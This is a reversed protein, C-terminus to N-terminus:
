VKVYIRKKHLTLAVVTWFLMMLLAYTLQPLPSFSDIWQLLLASLSQQGKTTALTIHTLVSAIIFKGFYVLFSNRGFAELFTVLPGLATKKADVHKRYDALLYFGSILLATAGASILAFSPMWMRKNLPLVQHVLLALIVLLIGLLAIEKWGGSEKKTLILRGIAYGFLVNALAAFSTILGEPDFGREGQAYMHNEGFVKADVIGSLNCTPQPLGGECSQSTSLIVTGYVFLIFCAILVLKIPSKIFRTIIVTVIGLLAFMQLVGTLRLTSLDLSWTVIMTFLIGYVILRITRKVIRKWVVGKQYAIAMSTGFITIFAPLIFDIITLGYWAAHRFYEYGGEPITSLFVSLVVILGRAMDLSYIRKKVPKQQSQEM